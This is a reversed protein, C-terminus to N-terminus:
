IKFVELVYNNERYGFAYWKGDKIRATHIGRPGRGDLVISAIGRHAELVLGQKKRDYEYFWVRDNRRIRRSKM